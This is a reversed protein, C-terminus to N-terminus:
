LSYAIGAYGVSQPGPQIDYSSYHDILEAKAGLIRAAEAAAAAAGASCAAKKKDGIDVMASPNPELAASIFALDNDRRYAEGEAGGGAPAFGYARGYHTLDTSAVILLSREKSLDALVKGLALASENPAARLPWLAADPFYRMLIPLVVEITNDDTSGFWVRPSLNGSLRKNLDKEIPFRGLPTAWFQDDFAIVPNQASLHGGLVAILDPGNPGFSKAARWVAKAALKGSFLWGAHPVIVALTKGQPAPGAEVYPRWQDMAAIAEDPKAPYWLGDLQTRRIKSTPM